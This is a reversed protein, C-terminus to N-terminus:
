SGTCVHQNYPDLNDLPYDGSIPRGLCQRCPQHTENCQMLLIPVTLSSLLSQQAASISPPYACKMSKYLAQTEMEWCRWPSEYSRSFMQEDGCSWTVSPSWFRMCAVCLCM